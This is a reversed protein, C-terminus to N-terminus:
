AVQKLNLGRNACAISVFRFVAFSFGIVAVLVISKLWLLGQAPNEELDEGAVKRSTAPCMTPDEGYAGFVVDTHRLVNTGLLWWPMEAPGPMLGWFICVAKEVGPIPLSKKVMYDDPVGM